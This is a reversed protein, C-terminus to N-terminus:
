KKLILKLDDEPYNIEIKTGIDGSFHFEEWPVDILIKTGIDGSLHIQNDVMWNDVLEAISINTSYRPEKDVDLMLVAFIGFQNIVYREVRDM